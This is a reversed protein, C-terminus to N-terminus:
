KCNQMSSEFDYAFKPLSIHNAVNYNEKWVSIIGGFVLIFFLQKAAKRDVGAMSAVDLLTNERRECYESLYREEPYKGSLIQPQANEMDIEDSKDASNVRRLSGIM